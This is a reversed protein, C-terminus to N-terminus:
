CDHRKQFTRKASLSKFRSWKRQPGSLKKLIKTKPKTPLISQQGDTGTKSIYMPALHILTQTMSFNRKTLAIHLPTNDKRDRSNVNIGAQVLMYVSKADGRRVAILLPNNGSADTVTLGVNSKLLVGVASSQGNAVALILPTRGQSDASNTDAGKRILSEIERVQGAVVAKRLAQNMKYSPDNEREAEAKKWAKFKKWAMESGQKAATQYWQIAKSTDVETGWGQEYMVGLQYQAEAHGKRAAKKLWM